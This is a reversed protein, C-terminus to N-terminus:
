SFRANGNTRPSRVRIRQSWQAPWPSRNRSAGAAASASVYPVVWSGTQSQVSFQYSGPQTLGTLDYEESCGTCTYTYTSAQGLLGTFVWTINSQTVGQAHNAWMLQFDSGTWSAQVNSPAAPLSPISVFVPDSFASSPASGAGAKCIAFYYTLGNVFAPSGLTTSSIVTATTGEPVASSDAVQTWNSPNGVGSGSEMVTYGAYEATTPDTAWDLM